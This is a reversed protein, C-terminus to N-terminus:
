RRRRRPRAARTALPTRRHSAVPWAPSGACRGDSCARHRWPRGLPSLMTVGLFIPSRASRWGPSRSRPRASGPWVPPAPSWGPARVARGRRGGPHPVAAGRPRRRRRHPRRDAAGHGGPPGARDGGADHRRCRDGRRRDAHPPRPDAPLRHPRRGDRRVARRHGQRRRHRWRHGGVSALVGVVLAEGLVSRRIQKPDAGVTRLLALERTRQGLVIAFTNYIIFISVFLAVGGFGLLINGVIDIEDTFESTTEDLVTAHDVVEATPVRPPSRPRFPPRCRRRRRGARRRQQHRRHRVTREGPRHEDAHARRRADLQRCRVVVNGVPHPRRPGGPVHGRLTDGIVFGHEAASDVDMTFEGPRRAPRRRGAHVASLQENDIWNFALQPPGDTPITTATPRSRASRM